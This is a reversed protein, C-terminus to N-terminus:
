DVKEWLTEDTGPEWVNAEHLSKWLTDNHTVAADLKYADHAGAPQRWEDGYSHHRKFLSHAVPPTWDSQSTHAQIVEWLIDDYVCLDEAKYDHPYKWEPYLFKLDALDSQDVDGATILPSVTLRSAVRSARYAKNFEIAKQLREAQEM